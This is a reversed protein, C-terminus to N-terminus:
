CPLCAQLLGFPVGRCSPGRSVAAEPVEDLMRRKGGLPSVSGAEVGLTTLLLAAVVALHAGRPGNRQATM